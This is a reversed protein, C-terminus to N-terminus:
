SHLREGHRAFAPVQGPASGSEALVQEGLGTPRYRFAVADSPGDVQSRSVLGHECLVDLLHYLRAQSMLRAGARERLSKAVEFGSVGDRLSETHEVVASLVDLAKSSLKKGNM